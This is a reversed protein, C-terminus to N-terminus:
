FWLNNYSDLMNDISYYNNIHKQTGLKFKQWSEHDKSKSIAQLISESLKIPNSVPIVWGFENVIKKVDGTDTAIVPIGFSMAEGIVIPFAETLSPLVCVDLDKYVSDLNEIYGRLNLKNKDVKTEIILKELEKNEKVMGPGILHCSYEIDKEDLIRLSNFLNRHDKHPDWRAICGLIIEDNKAKKQLENNSFGIPIYVFKNKDFGIKGHTNQASSACFIIKKPIVYSLIVNFYIVIRTSLKIVKTNVSYALISWYINKIGIIRGAIGGLFNSHYMWTQIIDPKEIRIIKILQFLKLFFLIRISINLSYIKYINKIKINKNPKKLSIIVHKIDKKDSNTLKNVLSIAGGPEVETIIHIIKM